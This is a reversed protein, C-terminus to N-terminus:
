GFISKFIRTIISNKIQTIPIAEKKWGYISLNAANTFSFVTDLDDIVILKLSGNKSFYFNFNDGFNELVIQDEINLYVKLNKKNLFHLNVNESLIINVIEEIRANVIDLILQKRIKRFSDKIFYEKEIFEDKAPKHDKFFDKSLINLVTEMKISCTKTIDRLIINTGFNFNEFYRFSARDFFNIHSYDKGVTIKLFTESTNKKILQVGESFKKLIIKNVELNSKNFIKKINKLDNNKILFFTLEHNYFDGYLGIPLNEVRVGDLISGSNFIHLITKKQMNELISLKLSNLIYSINEKLLQSGNLKKFGSISVCSFDFSDLVLTVENFIYNTKKEIIEVNKKIKKSVDEIDILKGQFIGKIPESIKEIIKFNQNQDNEIAVFIFETENIEVFLIPQDIHM